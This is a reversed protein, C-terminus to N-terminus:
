HFKSIYKSFSKLFLKAGMAGNKNAKCYLSILSNNPTFKKILTQLRKLGFKDEKAVKFLCNRYKQM